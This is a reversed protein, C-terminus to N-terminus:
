KLFTALEEILGLQIRTSDTSDHKPIVTQRAKLLNLTRSKDKYGSPPGASLRTKPEAVRRSPTPTGRLRFPASSRPAALRGTGSPTGPRDGQAGGRGSLGIGRM